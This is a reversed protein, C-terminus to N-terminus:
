IGQPNTLINISIAAVDLIREYDERSMEHISHQPVGRLGEREQLFSIENKLNTEGVGKLVIEPEFQVYNEIQAYYDTIGTSESEITKEQKKIEAVRGAGFLVYKGPQYYVILDGEDLQKAGPVNRRYHYVRGIDDDYNSSDPLRQNLWYYNM